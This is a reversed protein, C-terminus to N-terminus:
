FSVTALPTAIRASLDTTGIEFNDMYSVVTQEATEPRWYLGHKWYPGQTDNMGISVGSINVVSVGNMWVQLEAAGSFNFKIRIVFNHFTNLPFPIAAAREVRPYSTAQSAAAVSATYIYLGDQHLNLEFAPFGSYDGADETAHFQGIVLSDSLIGPNAQLRVAFSVWISTDFPEKTQCQLESRTRDNATDGAWFDGQRTEFRFLSPKFAARQISWPQVASQVNFTRGSFTIPSGGITFGESVSRLLYTRFAAIEAAREQATLHGGFAYTSVGGAGYLTDSRGVCFTASTLATSAVAVSGIDADDVTREYSTSSGRSWIFHGLQSATGDQTTADNARSYAPTATNSKGIRALNNGCRATINSQFTTFGMSASNLSYLGGATAPNFGTDLYSSTGNFTYGKGPTHVPANVPTATFSTSRLNLCASQENALNYLYYADRKNWVGASKLALILNNINSKVADTPPVTMRSFYAEASPDYVASSYESVSLDIGLM